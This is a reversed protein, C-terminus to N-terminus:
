SAGAPPAKRGAGALAIMAGLGWLTLGFSLYPGVAPLARLLITLALVGGFGAYRWRGRAAPLWRWSIAWASALPAAYLACGYALLAVIGIPLGVITLMALVAAVPWGLLAGLGLLVGRGPRAFAAEALEALRRPAIALALAGFAFATAFGLALGALTKPWERLAYRTARTEGAVRVGPAVPKFTASVYRLDGGIRTAPAIALRLADISASGAVAAALHLQSARARLEGIAGALSAEGAALLLSKGIAGAPRTEFRGAAVLADDGVPAALLADSAALRMSRAVPALVKVSGGAITLRGEVPGAIEVQGGAVYVDGEVRGELRVRGGALYLDDRITEGPPVRLDAGARLVAAGAAPALGLTLALTLVSRALLRRM